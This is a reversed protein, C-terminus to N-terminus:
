ITIFGVDFSYFPELYFGQTRDLGTVGWFTYNGTMEIGWDYPGGEWMIRWFRGYGLEEGREPTLLVIDRSPRESLGGANAVLHRHLAKAAGSTTKYTSLDLTADAAKRREQERGLEAALNNRGRERADMREKIMRIQSRLNEITHAAQEQEQDMRDISDRLDNIADTM